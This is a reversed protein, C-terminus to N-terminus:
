ATRRVSAGPRSPCASHKVMPRPLSTITVAIAARRRCTTPLCTVSIM